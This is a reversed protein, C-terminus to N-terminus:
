AVAGAREHAVVGSDGLVEETVPKAGDAGASGLIQGRALGRDTGDAAM